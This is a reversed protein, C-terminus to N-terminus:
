THFHPTSKREQQQVSRILWASLILLCGGVVVWLLLDARYSLLAFPAYLLVTFPPNIFPHMGKDERVGVVSDQFSRQVVLDYVEPLRDDLFFHAGTYFALFDGGIVNDFSDRFGSGFTMSQLSLLALLVYPAAMLLGYIRIREMTAFRAITKPLIQVRSTRMMYIRADTGGPKGLDGASSGDLTSIPRRSANKNSM